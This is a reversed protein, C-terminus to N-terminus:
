QTAPGVTPEVMVSEMTEDLAASGLMVIESEKVTENPGGDLIVHVRPLTSNNLSILFGSGCIVRSTILGRYILLVCGSM